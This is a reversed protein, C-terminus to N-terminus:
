AQTVGPVTAAAAALRQEYWEQYTKGTGEVKWTVRGNMNRAAVIAAGASPSNLPIDEAVVYYDPQTPHQVLKGDKVLQERLKRYSTWAPVGQVRATSGKLLFFQGDVERAHGVAGVVSIAFTPSVFPIEVTTSPAM